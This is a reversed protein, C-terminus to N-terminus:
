LQFNTATVLNKMLMAITMPGVGGPVPTLAGVKQSVEGFAVDGMIGNPTRHIGVDIITANEKVMDARIFELQGLAAIVIDARSTEDKLNKTRSHCLTVTANNMLLLQAVPKGVIDSRGVVVARAGEIPISYFKLIEIIGAPTCPVLRPEGLALHGVNVPHLGDVDKNPDIEQLVRSKNIGGPLPLQVLIGNVDRDANLERVKAVVQDETSSAPMSITEGRIGLAMAKNTKSRVYTQSAPDDGVIVFTIRPVVPLLSMELLTKSYTAEAVKKGDLILAM